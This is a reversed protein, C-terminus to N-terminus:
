GLLPYVDSLNAQVSTVNFFLGLLGMKRRKRMRTKRSQAQRRDADFRCGQREDQNTTTGTQVRSTEIGGRERRGNKM